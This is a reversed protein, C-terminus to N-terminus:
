KEKAYEQTKRGFCGSSHNFKPWMLPQEWTAAEQHRHNNGRSIHLTQAVLDVHLESFLQSNAHAIRHDESFHKCDRPYGHSTSGKM